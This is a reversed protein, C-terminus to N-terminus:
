TEQIKWIVVSKLSFTVSKLSIHALFSMELCMLVNSSAKIYSKITFNIAPGM